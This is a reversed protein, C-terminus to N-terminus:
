HTDPAALRAAVLFLSVFDTCSLDKRVVPAAFFCVVAGPPVDTSKVFPPMYTCTRRSGTAVIYPIRGRKAGGFEELTDSAGTRRPVKM